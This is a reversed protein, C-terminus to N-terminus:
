SLVCWRGGVRSLRVSQKLLSDKNPPHKGGYIVGKLIKGTTTKVSLTIAENGFVEMITGVYTDVSTLAARTTVGGFRSGM